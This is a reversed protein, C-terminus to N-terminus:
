KQRMKELAEGQQDITRFLKEILQGRSELERRLVTLEEQATALDSRLVAAQDISKHGGAQPTPGSKLPAAVSATGPSTTPRRTAVEAAPGPVAAAPDGGGAGMEEATTRLAQAWCSAHCEDLLGAFIRFDVDDKKRLLVDLIEDMQDYDCMQEKVHAVEWPAMFGGAARDLRDALGTQSVKVGVRLGPGLIELAARYADCLNGTNLTDPPSLSVSDDPSVSYEPWHPDDPWDPDDLRGQDDLRFQDDLLVPDDFRGPDELRDPCPLSVPHAPTLSSTSYM